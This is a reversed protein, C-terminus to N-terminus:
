PAQDLPGSLFAYTYIRTEMDQPTSASQYPALQTEAYAKVPQGDVSTIEVGPVLGQEKLTEDFVGTVVVHGEVLKTRLAPRAQM